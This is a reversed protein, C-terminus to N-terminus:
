TLAIARYDKVFPVSGKRDSTLSIKISWRRFGDFTGDPSTYRYVDSSGGTLASAPLKYTWERFDNMNGTSSYLDAGESIDMEVWPVDTFTSTDSASQGRFYVAINTDNPRYGTLNVQFDEADFDDNLEFSKSIYKSSTEATDTVNFTTAMLKSVEVDVIPTSTQNGSNQMNVTLEFKNSKAPDNSHSYLLCGRQNFHNLDNFRVPASYSVSTNLPDVFAGTVTM